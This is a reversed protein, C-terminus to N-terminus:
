NTLLVRKSWVAGEQEVQIFYIGAPNGSIDINQRGIIDMTKALITEGLSNIVTCKANSLDYAELTLSGNTPNPYCKLGLDSEKENVSLPHQVTFKITSRKGFDNEFNHVIGSGLKMVRFFGSGDNNAFFSLGDNDSDEITLNYCGLGLTITDRVIENAQFNDKSFVVTGWQDRISIKTENGANNTRTFLYFDTPFVESIEFRSVYENNSPDEDEQSNVLKIRAHFRNDNAEAPEWIEQEVPLYFIASASPAIEGYWTIEKKTNEDNVWYEIVADKLVESGYNTIEITPTSCMPNDRAYEVKNSPALIDSIGADIKHNYEGYTVIQSSIIYRSDGEGADITYDVDVANDETMFSSLDYEAVDTAMGPCWGARDYIWTGGQPYVPNDACEKWVQRTFTESENIIFSHNRPIFEGQQGHGTIASRLKLGKANADYGFNTKPYYTENLIQAYNATIQQSPWIERIDLVDRAPTGKIFLFEIDMEEQNQGGRSLFIRKEGKLIPTFDTMDFTWTKGEPGLDLGIGYPTVFSMIELRSPWRRIYPLTGITIIGDSTVDVSDYLVGQEDYFYENSNANWKDFTEAVVREDDINSGVNSKITYRTLKNPHNPVLDFTTVENVTFDFNGQHFRINPRYPTPYFDKFIKQARLSNYTPNGMITGAKPNTASCKVIADDVVDFKYNLVIQPNQPSVLRNKVNNIETSTLASAWIRLGDIEGRFYRNNVGRSVRVNIGSTTNIVRNTVTGNTELVGDVYHKIGTVDTGSFVCAVHHWQNDAINTTGNVGGGNVETRLTGDGNVRFVWKEGSADRGWSCIEGNVLDTKIWAEITRDNTGLIGEYDDAEVYNSAGDFYLSHGSFATIGVTSDIDHSEIELLSTAETNSTFEFVLNSTGDWIFPTHFILLKTSFHFSVDDSFVNTFGDLSLSSLEFSDSATALINVQLNSVQAFSTAKLSIADLEGASIGAASLEEASFLFQSKGAYGSEPNNSIPVMYTVNHNGTGIAASSSDTAMNLVVKKQINKYHNNTPTNTYDYTSGSFGSIFYDSTTASLSDTRTPDEIYTNCSYDWEGCGLNRNTGTSVRAGKCRMNYLMIIQRFSESGDPFTITTDRTQSSYDFAKVRITDQAFAFQFIIILGLTLISKKM